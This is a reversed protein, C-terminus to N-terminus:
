SGPYHVEEESYAEDRCVEEGEGEGGGLVFSAGVRVLVFDDDVAVGDGGKGGGDLDLAHSALHGNDEGSVGKAAERRRAQSPGVGLLAAGNAANRPLEILLDMVVVGLGARPLLLRSGVVKASLNAGLGARGNVLALLDLPRKLWLDGLCNQLLPELVALDGDKPVLRNISGLAGDDLSTRVDCGELRERALGKGCLDEDITAVLTIEHGSRADRVAGSTLAPVFVGLGLSSDGDTSLGLDGLNVRVDDLSLGATTQDGTNAADDGIGRGDLALGVGDAELRVVEAHGQGLFGGVLDGEGLGGAVLLGVVLDEEAVDLRAVLPGEERVLEHGVDLGVGVGRALDAGIEDAAVVVVLGVVGVVRIRLALGDVLLVLEPRLAEEPGQRVVLADGLRDTGRDPGPAVGLVLPRAVAVPGVLDVDALAAAHAAHVRHALAVDLLGLAAAAADGHAGVREVHVLDVADDDLAVDAVVAVDVDGHAPGEGDGVLGDDGLGVLGGIEEVGDGHAGRM